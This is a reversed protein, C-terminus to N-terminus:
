RSFARLPLCVSSSQASAPFSPKMPTLRGSSYPPPPAPIYSSLRTISSNAAPPEDSSIITTEGAMLPVIMAFNPVSSCFLRQSGPIASPVSVIAKAIVSGSAPEFECRM